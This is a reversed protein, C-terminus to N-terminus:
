AALWILAKAAPSSSHSRKVKIGEAANAAIHEEAGQEVETHFEAVELAFELGELEVAVMQMTGAGLFGADFAHFEIHVHAIVVVIMIVRVLMRMILSPMVVVMMLMLMFVMVGMAMFVARVPMAVVVVLFVFMLVQMFMILMMM